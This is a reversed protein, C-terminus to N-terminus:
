ALVADSDYYELIKWPVKETCTYAFTHAACLLFSYVRQICYFFRVCWTNTPRRFYSIWNDKM